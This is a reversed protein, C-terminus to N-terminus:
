IHILSLDIVPWILGPRGDRWFVSDKVGGIIEKTFYPSNKGPEYIWEQGYLAAAVEFRYDGSRLLNNPLKIKFFNFGPKLSHESDTSIDNNFSQFLMRGSQDYLCFGVQLSPDWSVVEGGLYLYIDENVHIVDERKEGSIGGLYFHKIRFYDSSFQRFDNQYQKSESSNLYQKTIVDIADAEGVVLGNNLYLGLNCLKEIAGMNHSVFLITRGENKSVEGMKGMCKKQFEADGVALVEDVILIEPELHAAVSFGLRVMMGSSYRKVPTDIYREVGAFSIIEDLKKNIEWKRMGLIAGNIYINERGTLEHHFGTGVELLSGVRGKMKVSGTSPQTIQSLIKLLTSKGAGNRGIIGLVQGRRVEFNVDKIAWVYESTSKITRDNAQGVKLFPDDKGRIKAWFRNLDHSLTGTGVTGLRYQKSLNEVRIVVDSM